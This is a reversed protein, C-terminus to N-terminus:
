IELNAKASCDTCKSSENIQNELTKNIKMMSSGVQSVSNISIEVFTKQYVLWRKSQCELLDYISM